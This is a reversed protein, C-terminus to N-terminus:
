NCCSRCMGGCLAARRRVVAAGQCVPWAHWTLHRAKCGWRRQVSCGWGCGAARHADCGALCCGVQPYTPWNSYEKLGQRVEEDALIDFHKYSIGAAQLAEAVKRSFGCRPAEPSGKMFLMVPHSDLLAKIRQQLDPQQRTAAPAAAPAAKSTSTLAAVKTSLAAADAGEVRDAVQTGQMACFGHMLTLAHHNASHRYNCVPWAAPLRTELGVIVHDCDCVPKTVSYLAERLGCRSCCSTLCQLCMSSKQSRM